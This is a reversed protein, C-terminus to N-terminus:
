RFAGRCNPRSKVGFFRSDVNKLQMSLLERRGSPLAGSNSLHAIFYSVHSTVVNTENPDLFGSIQAEKALEFISRRFTSVHAGPEKRLAEQFLTGAGYLIRRNEHSVLDILGQRIEETQADFDGFIMAM